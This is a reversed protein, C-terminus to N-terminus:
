YLICNECLEFIHSNKLINIPSDSLTENSVNLHRKQSVGIQLRSSMESLRLHTNWKLRLQMNDRHQLLRRRM